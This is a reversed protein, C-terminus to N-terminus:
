RYVRMSTIEQTRSYDDPDLWLGKQILQEVSHKHARITNTFQDQTYLAILNSLLSKSAPSEAIKQSNHDIFDLVNCRLLWFSGEEDFSFNCIFTMILDLTKITGDRIFVQDIQEVIDYGTTSVSEVLARRSSESSCLNGLIGIISRTASVSSAMNLLQLLGRILNTHSSLNRVNSPHKTLDWLADFLPQNQKNKIIISKQLITRSIFKLAELEEILEEKTHEIMEKRKNEYYIHLEAEDALSNISILAQQSERSIEDLVHKMKGFELAFQNQKITVLEEEIAKVLRMREEVLRALPEDM